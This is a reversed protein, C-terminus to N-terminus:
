NFTPIGDIGAYEHGLSSKNIRNKAINVCELTFPKGENDRYAGVGLLCKSPNMDLKFADSLGLIPDPPLQTVLSWLSSYQRKLNGMVIM